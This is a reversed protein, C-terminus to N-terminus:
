GIPPPQGSGGVQLYGALSSVTISLALYARINSLVCLCIASGDGWNRCVPQYTPCDCRVRVDPSVSPITQLGTPLKFGVTLPWKLNGVPAAADRPSVAAVGGGRAAPRINQPLPGDQGTKVRLRPPGSYKGELSTRVRGGPAKVSGAPQYNGLAPSQRVPHASGAPSMADHCCSEDSATDDSSHYYHHRGATLFPRWHHLIRHLARLDQSSLRAVDSNKKKPFCLKDIL